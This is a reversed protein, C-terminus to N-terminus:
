RMEGRRIAWIYTEIDRIKITARKRDGRRMGGRAAVIAMKRRHLIGIYRQQDKSLLKPRAAEIVASYDYPNSM